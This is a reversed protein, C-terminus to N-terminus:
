KHAADTRSLSRPLGDKSWLEAFDTRFPSAPLGDKNWLNVVPYDAWGYRVAVPTTVYNNTVVVNDGRIEAVAPAFKKDPGASWFGTLAGGRAALGSGVHDFSLIAENGEVKMSKYIPGSYVIKEGYAVARAALALRAGVPEKRKPHKDFEDGVDTTVALATNPVCLSTLLQAERLEAWSASEQMVVSSEPIKSFPAIQALLFPFDGQNWDARWNAILAPLLTQYHKARGANSEGQYWIAGRLAYPILPAIM